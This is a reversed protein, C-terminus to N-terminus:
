IGLTKLIVTLEEVTEINGRYITHNDKIIWTIPIDYPHEPDSEWSLIIRLDKGKKFSDFNIDQNHYQHTFKFNVFDEVSIM